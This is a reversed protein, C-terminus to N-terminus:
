RRSRALFFAGIAGLGVVWPWPNSKKPPTWAFAQTLYDTRIQECQELTVGKPCIAESVAGAQEPLWHYHGMDGCGPFLHTWRGGWTGGYTQEWWEGLKTHAECTNPSLDLDVAHGIIHASRCLSAATAGQALYEQQKACTRGVERLKPKLGLAAAHNLLAQFKARHEPVIDDLTKTPEFSM